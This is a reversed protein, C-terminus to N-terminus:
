GGGWRFMEEQFLKTRGYPSVAALRTGERIPVEDSTGYVTCSSSFVLQRCHSPPLRPPPPPLPRAPCPLPNPHARSGRSQAEAVPTALLRVRPGGGVQKVGHDAMAGLLAVSAVFNNDYYALPQAVSEGV